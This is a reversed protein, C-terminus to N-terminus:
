VPNYCFNSIVFATATFATFKHQLVIQSGTREHDYISTCQKFTSFSLLRSPNKYDFLKTFHDTTIEPCSSCIRFISLRLCYINCQIIEKLHFSGSFLVVFLNYVIVSDSCHIFDITRLLKKSKHICLM